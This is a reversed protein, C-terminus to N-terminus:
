KKKKINYFGPTKTRSFHSPCHYLPYSTFKEGNQEAINKDLKIM